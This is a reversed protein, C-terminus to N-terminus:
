KDGANELKNMLSRLMKGIEYLLQRANSTEEETLYEIDVCYILQAELEARSGRAVSLFHSFENRSKREQGESINFMISMAARRMQSSLAYQEWKPFKQVLFHIEKALVRAKQWVILDQYSEVPM